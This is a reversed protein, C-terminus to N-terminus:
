RHLAAGAFREPRYPALETVAQGGLIEQTVYRGMIPALTVGSHMVAVYVDRNGPVPGVVPMRDQPMPRYGLTLHSYTAEGAPPLKKRITDLIRNGHLDRIEAPMEAPGELIAAHEPINPAYYGDNGVIRGDPNQKFYTHPSEVVRGLVPSMPETHMLIGPAHILPVNFGAGAVVRPTDVGGAVVLKDLLYDRQTTAVCRLHGEAFQLDTVECPHVVEAGRNRAADLLRNTTEVPEIHGDMANLAALEIQGLRVNPALGQLEKEDILRADYGAQSLELTEAKMREADAPTEAWHIAGGWVVGLDLRDDLEHWGGISRMRLARYHPDSTFANIWAFSKSTAGAAPATKEFLTVEAGASALHYAISAGLIGGGVVGVAVRQQQGSAFPGFSAAAALGGMGKLFERRITM